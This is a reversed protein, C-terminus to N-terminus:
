DVNAVHRCSRPSIRVAIENGVAIQGVRGEVTFAAGKALWFKPLDVDLEEYSGAMRLPQPIRLLLQSNELPTWCSTRGPVDTSTVYKRRQYPLKKTVSLRETVGPSTVPNLRVAGLLSVRSGLEPWVM